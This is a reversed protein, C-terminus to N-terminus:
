GSAADRTVAVTAAGIAKVADASAQGLHHRQALWSADNFTLWATGDAAEWGLVRTPLDLGATQRDQM